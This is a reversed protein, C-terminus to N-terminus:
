KEILDGHVELLYGDHMPVVDNYKGIFFWVLVQKNVKVEGCENFM